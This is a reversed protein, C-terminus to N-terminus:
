QQQHDNTPIKIELDKIRIRESDRIRITELDKIKIITLDKITSGKIISDKIKTTIDKIISDKIKTTIDKIQTLDKIRIIPLTTLDNINDM